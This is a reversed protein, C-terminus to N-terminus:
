PVEQLELENVLGNPLPEVRVIVCDISLATLPLYRIQIAVAVFLAPEDLPYM